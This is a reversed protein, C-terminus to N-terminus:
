GEEENPCAGGLGLLPLHKPVLGVLHPPGNSGLGNGWAPLPHEISQFVFIGVPLQDEGGRIRTPLDPNRSPGLRDESALRPEGDEGDAGGALRLLCRAGSAGSIRATASVPGKRVRQPDEGEGGSLYGLDRRDLAPAQGSLIAAMQGVM